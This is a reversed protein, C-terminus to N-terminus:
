NLKLPSFFCIQFHAELGPHDINLCKDENQHVNGSSQSLSTSLLLLVLETIYSVNPDWDLLTSAKQNAQDM